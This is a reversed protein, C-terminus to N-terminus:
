IYYKTESGSAIKNESENELNQVSSDSIKDVHHFFKMLSQQKSTPNSGKGKWNEQKKVEQNNAKM